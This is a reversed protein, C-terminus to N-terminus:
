FYEMVKQTGLANSPIRITLKKLIEIKKRASGVFGIFTKDIRRAQLDARETGM